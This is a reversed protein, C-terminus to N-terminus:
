AATGGRLHNFNLVDIQRTLLFQTLRFDDTLVLFNERAIEVIAADSLGLKAFQETSCVERSPLHIERLPQVLSRLLTLLSIATSQDTQAVLNSVETLINPCTVLTQFEAVLSVLIEYDDETFQRTRKHRSILSKDLSGVVYLLLVNTDVIVGKPRYKAVLEDFWNM